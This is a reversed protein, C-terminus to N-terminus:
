FAPDESSRGERRGREVMERMRPHDKKQGDMWRELPPVRLGTRFLWYYACLDGLYAFRRRADAHLAAYSPFRAVYAAVSGEEAVLAALARANAIAAEVKSRSRIVGETALIREVDPAGYAAVTAVEFGEFAGRFAEWRNAILAWSLGAQFIARTMVDLHDDLTAAPLVPPIREVGSSGRRRPAVEAEVKGDSRM